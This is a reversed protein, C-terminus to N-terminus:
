EVPDGFSVVRQTAHLPRMTCGEGGKTVDFAGTDGLSGVGLHVPLVQGFQILDEFGDDRVAAVAPLHEQGNRHTSGDIVRIEQELRGIQNQQHRLQFLQM